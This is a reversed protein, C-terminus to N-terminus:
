ICHPLSQGTVACYRRLAEGLMQVLGASTDGSGGVVLVPLSVTHVQVGQLLKLVAGAVQAQGADEEGCLLLKCPRPTQAQHTPDPLSAQPLPQPQPPVEGATFSPSKSVMLRLELFFCDLVNPVSSALTFDFLKLTVWAERHATACLPTAATFAALSVRSGGM